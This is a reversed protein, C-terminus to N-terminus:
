SRFIVTVLDRDQCRFKWFSMYEMRCTTLRKKIEKRNKNYEQSYEQFLYIVKQM